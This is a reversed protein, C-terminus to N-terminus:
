ALNRAADLAAYTFITDAGARRLSILSEMLCRDYDIAGANAALRLMAYEGSVHYAALPLTTAARLRCLIDLYALGPKVMLWDAGETEDLAAERLAERANAPDMQYTCKDGARPASDLAHRFPGYFASAYKVAYSCLLTEHYGTTELASRIAGVRGDMMDSPAVIDAGSSAHLVAMRALIEVTRDNVIRGRDDVLGDHGDSNFPDLALDTICVSTPFREKIEKLRRVVLGSPDLAASAQRDKFKEPIIPFLAFSSIDLELAQRITDLLEQKGLRFVGPMSHIPEKGSPTDLLFVPLVLNAPSLTTERVMARIPSSVRNRRPRQPIQM